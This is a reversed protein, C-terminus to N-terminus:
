HRPVQAWPQMLKQSNTPKLLFMLSKLHKMGLLVSNLLITVLPYTKSSTNEMLIQLPERPLTGEITGTQAFTLATFLLMAATFIKSM